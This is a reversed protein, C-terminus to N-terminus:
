ISEVVFVAYCLLAAYVPQRLSTRGSRNRRCWYLFQPKKKLVDHENM